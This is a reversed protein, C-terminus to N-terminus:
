KDAMGTTKASTLRKTVEVAHQVERPSADAAGAGLAVKGDPRPLTIPKVEVTAVGKEALELEHAVKPAVDVVRGPAFPGRDEILVTATKGNTLNTVKAVSGLPLNKSAAVDANPNMRDGDAMKRRAFHGAYFSARGKETRGSHDIHGVPSSAVPPLRALREAELASGPSEAPLPGALAVRSLSYMGMILAAGRWRSM